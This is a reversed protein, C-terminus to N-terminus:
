NICVCFFTVMSLVVILVLLCLLLDAAMLKFLVEVLWTILKVFYYSLAFSLVFLLATGIAVSFYPNNLWPNSSLNMFAYLPPLFILGLAGGIFLFAVQIIKKLMQKVEM